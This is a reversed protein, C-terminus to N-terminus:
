TSLAYGPIIERRDSIGLTKLALPWFAESQEGFGNNYANANFQSHKAAKLTRSPVITVVGKALDEALARINGPMAPSFMQDLPQRRVSRISRPGGSRGASPGQNRPHGFAQSAALVKPGASAASGLRPHKVSIASRAKQRQVNGPTARFTSSSTSIGDPKAM